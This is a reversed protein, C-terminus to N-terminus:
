VCKLKHEKNQKLSRSWAPLGSKPSGAAPLCTNSETVLDVNPKWALQVPPNQEAARKGFKGNELVIKVSQM